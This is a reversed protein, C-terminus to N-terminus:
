VAVKNFASQIIDMGISGLFILLCFTGGVSRVGGTVKEVGKAYKWLWILNAIPIILLWASPIEAGKAKMEGKTKVYWVLGYIGFTIFPLFFVALPSRNKM